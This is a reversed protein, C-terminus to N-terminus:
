VRTLAVFVPTYTLSTIGSAMLARAAALDPTQTANVGSRRIHATLARTSGFDIVRPEMEEIIFDKRALGQEVLDRAAKQLESASMYTPRRRQFPKLERYTDPGFCSLALVAGSPMARLARALFRRPSNFWQITSAAIVGALPGASSEACVMDAIDVEADSPRVDDFLPAIDYRALPNAILQSLLGTGTGFEIARASQPAIGRWIEALRAAAERQVGAEGDYTGAAEGFSRSIHHKDAFEHEMIAGFDPMHPADDGLEEIHEHGDWARRQNATPIIRDAGAIYVTDFHPDPAPGDAFVHRLEETLSDITRKPQMAAFRAYAEGGGTMRRRFKTLNREDLNDLTGRFIAEPIGHTDDVPHLTGNVAVCRTIPLTVAHSAIFRAAYPVGFSWALVCIERYAALRDAPLPRPDSYDWVVATDYGDRGLGALPEGDMGWGAFFLILRPNAAESRRSLTLYNM